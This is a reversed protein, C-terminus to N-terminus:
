EHPHLPDQRRTCRIAQQTPPRWWARITSSSTKEVAAASSIRPTSVVASLGPPLQPSGSRGLMCCGPAHFHPAASSALLSTLLSPSLPLTSRKLPPPLLLLPPSSSLLSSFLSSM